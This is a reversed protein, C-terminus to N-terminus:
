QKQDASSVVECCDGETTLECNLTIKEDAGLEFYQPDGKCEDLTFQVSGMPLTFTSNQGGPASFVGSIAVSNVQFQFHLADGHSTPNSVVLVQAKRKGVVSRSNAPENQPVESWASVESRDNKKPSNSSVGSELKPATQAPPTAASGCSALGFAVLISACYRTMHVTGVASRFRKVVLARALVRKQRGLGLVGNGRGARSPVRTIKGARAAVPWVSDAAALCEVLVPACAGHGNPPVTTLLPAPRGDCM